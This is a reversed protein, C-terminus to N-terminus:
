GGRGSALQDVYQCATRPSRGNYRMAWQLAGRELAEPEIELGRLQALERVIRLYLRQDPQSFTVTIGFRDALSLKEQMTDAAHVDDSSRESFSERVLHRRNSTAYIVANAPRAALSGELAAKLAAFGNDEDSFTLDDIFLIFRLPLGGLLAYLEAFGALNEKAIEVIRLGRASLANFVAKVTSSKGTGRDGYLLMNSAPLGEVFRLTNDFVTKREYEYGRLQEVRVPDPNKVPCLAYDGGAARWRFAMSRAFVGFGNVRHFEELRRLLQAADECDFPGGASQASFEPLAAIVGCAEIDEEFNQMAERKLEDACLGRLFLLTELDNLAGGAVAADAAGTRTFRNDDYLFAEELARRFSAPGSGLLCAYLACWAGIFVRPDFGRVAELLERLLRVPEQALAARYVTLSPLLLQARATKYIEIM